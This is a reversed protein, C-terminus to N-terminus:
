HVDKGDVCAFYTSEVSLSGDPIPYLSSMLIAVPLFHLFCSRSSAPTELLNLKLINDPKPHAVALGARDIVLAYGRIGVRESAILDAM